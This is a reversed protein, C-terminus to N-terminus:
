KTIVATPAAHRRLLGAVIGVAHSVNMAQRLVGPKGTLLMALAKVAHRLTQAVIFPPVGFFTRPYAPLEWRGTKMGSTYHLRLFYSRSLRWDEVQHKVVMDPRYRLRAKQELLKRFVEVDEGGGVARGERNYRQDFRLGRRFLATQYGVNSTWV